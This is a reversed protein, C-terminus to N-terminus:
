KLKIVQDLIKEELKIDRVDATKFIGMTKNHHCPFSPLDLLKQTIFNSVVEYLLTQENLICFVKICDLVVLEPIPEIIVQKTLRPHSWAEQVSLRATTCPLMM